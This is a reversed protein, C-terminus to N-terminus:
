PAIRTFVRLWPDVKSSQARMAQNISPPHGEVDCCVVRAISGIFQQSRAARHRWAFRKGKLMLVSWGSPVSNFAGESADSAFEAVILMQVSSGTSHDM